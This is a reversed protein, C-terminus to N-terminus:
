PEGKLGDMLFAVFARIKGSPRPGGPFVAHVEAPEMAFGPLVQRLQGAKFEAKCLMPSAIAIGLGAVVSALVGSGSETHIRGRVDVASARGDKAFRWTARGFSGPGFICDHGVLEAPNTPTGRADLYGPAAVLCRELRPLRHAGFGSDALPGIRIAIDAGEAVLDRREDAVTMELQLLPHAALFKPLLPIVARTGYMVPLALRLMGHLSDAGRAADEADEWQALLARARELFVAGADTLTMRRTTRLLLTVGLRAELEGLIRSISPQSLGLERGAASLSGSEATRVFVVLEQARDSM